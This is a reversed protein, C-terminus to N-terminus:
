TTVVAVVEPGGLGNEVLMTPVLLPITTELPPEIDDIPRTWGSRDGFFVNGSGNTQLKPFQSLQFWAPLEAGLKSARTPIFKL